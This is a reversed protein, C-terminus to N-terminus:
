LLGDLQFGKKSLANFEAVFPGESNPFLAIDHRVDDLTFYRRNEYRKM